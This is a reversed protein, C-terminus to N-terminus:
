DTKSLVSEKIGEDRDFIVHIKKSSHLIKNDPDHIRTEQPKNHTMESKEILLDQM